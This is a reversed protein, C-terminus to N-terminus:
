ILTYDQYFWVSTEKKPGIRQKDKANKLDERLASVRRSFQNQSIRCGTEQIFAYYLAACTLQCGEQFRVRRELFDWIIGDIEEKEDIVRPQVDYDGSFSYGDDVLRFYAAMARFAIGPLEGKISDLLERVFEGDRLPYDFPICCIRNCLAEDPTKIKLPHNSVFIIKGLFVFAEDRHYKQEASITDLGTLAKLNGVVVQNLSADPFDPPIWLQKGSLEALSFQKSLRLASISAVSASPLLEKIFNTLLTKGTDGEGELFFFKKAAADPTLCYGIMEWIRNILEARNGTVRELYREFYPCAAHPDYRTMIGCELFVSPDTPELTRNRLNIRCNTFAVYHRSNEEQEKSVETDEDICMSEAVSKIFSATGKAHVVTQLQIIIHQIDRQEHRILGVPQDSKRQFLSFSNSFLHRLFAQPQM